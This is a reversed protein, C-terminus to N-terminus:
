EPKFVWFRTFFNQFMLLGIFTGRVKVVKRKTDSKDEYVPHNKGNKRNAFSLMEQM